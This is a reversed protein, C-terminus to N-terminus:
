LDSAEFESVHKSTKNGVYAGPVHDFVFLSVNNILVEMPVALFCAFIIILMLYRHPGSQIILTCILMYMSRRSQLFVPFGMSYMIWFKIMTKM